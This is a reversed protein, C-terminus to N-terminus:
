AVEIDILEDMTQSLLAEYLGAVKEIVVIGKMLVGYRFRTPVEDIPVIDVPIGLELEIRAELQALYKLDRRTTYIAIDIDRYSDLDVFSGFVIALLVDDEKGLLERLKKLVEEKRNEFYRHMSPM